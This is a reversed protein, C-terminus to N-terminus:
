KGNALVISCELEDDRAVFNTPKRNKFHYNVLIDLYFTCKHSSKSRFSLDPFFLNFAIHDFHVLDAHTISGLYKQRM